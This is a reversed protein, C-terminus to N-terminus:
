IQRTEHEIDKLVKQLVEKLMNKDKLAAAIKFNEKTIQKRDAYINGQIEKIIMESENAIHIGSAQSALDIM